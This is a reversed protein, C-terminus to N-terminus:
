RFEKPVYDYRSPDEDDKMADFIADTLTEGFSQRGNNDTIEWHSTFDGTDGLSSTVCKCELINEDAWELLDISEKKNEM